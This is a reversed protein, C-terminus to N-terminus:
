GMMRGWDAVILMVVAMFVPVAFPITWKESKEPCTMDMYPGSEGSMVQQVYNLLYYMRERILDYKVLKALSLVAGSIFALVLVSIIGKPGTYIGVAMLLKVDGAGIMSLVFLWGCLVLPVSLGIAANLLGSWGNGYFQLFLGNIVAAGILVNSIRSSERDKVAAAATFLLLTMQLLM